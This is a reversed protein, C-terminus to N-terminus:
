QAFHVNSGINVLERLRGDGELVEIWKCDNSSVHTNLYNLLISGPNIQCKNIADFLEGDHWDNVEEVYHEFRDRM